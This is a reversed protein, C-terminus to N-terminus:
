CSSGQYYHYLQCFLISLTKVYHITGTNGTTSNAILMCCFDSNRLLQLLSNVGGLIDQGVISPEPTDAVAMNLKIIISEDM